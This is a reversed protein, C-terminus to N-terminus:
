KRNVPDKTALPDFMWTSNGAHTLQGCLHYSARSLIWDAIQLNKETLEDTTSERRIDSELRNILDLSTEPPTFANDPIPTVMATEPDYVTVSKSRYWVYGHYGYNVSWVKWGHAAHAAKTVKREYKDRPMRFEQEVYAIVRFVKGCNEPLIEDAPYYGYSPATAPDTDLPTYCNGALRDMAHDVKVRIGRAFWSLVMDVKDPSVNIDYQSQWGIPPEIAALPVDHYVHTHEQGNLVELTLMGPDHCSNGCVRLWSWVNIGRSVYDNWTRLEVNTGVPPTYRRTMLNETKM